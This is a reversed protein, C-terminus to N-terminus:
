RNDGESKITGRKQRNQLKAINETMIDGLDVGMESALAACYWLVDGIEKVLAAKHNISLTQGTKIGHNRWYKKVKDCVEGAEGAIGMAPYLINYGVDPYEALARAMQQYTRAEM